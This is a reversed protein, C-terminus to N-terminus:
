FVFSPAPLLPPLLPTACDFEPQARLGTSSPEALVAAMAGGEPAVVTVLRGGDRRVQAAIGPPIARVAGEIMIVDWPAGEQRGAALPGSVLRVGPAVGPLAQRAIALLAEDQELAAVQVGCAALLAAGYGTGAGVV